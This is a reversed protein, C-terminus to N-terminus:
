RLKRRPRLLVAPAAAGLIGARLQAITQTHLQSVRSESIHLRRGIEHMKLGEEYYCRLLTRKQESLAGVAQALAQRLASRELVVLPDAHIAACHNLYDNADDGSGLDDLSILAYDHADQMLKQYESLQLGLATAVERETPARGREHGLRQITVEVSRMDRRLKRTAPDVARLGDVMSGHARQAVYNEFHSGSTERTWRLLADILGMLGDQILDKCDVNASLSKALKRAIREVLPTQSAILRQAEPAGVDNKHSMGYRRKPLPRSVVEPQTALAQGINSEYESCLM